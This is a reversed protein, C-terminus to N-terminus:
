CDPNWKWRKGVCRKRCNKKSINYKYVTCTVLSMNYETIYKVAICISIHSIKDDEPMQYYEVYDVYDPGSKSIFGLRGPGVYSWM